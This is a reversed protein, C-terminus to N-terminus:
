ADVRLADVPNLRFARRAAALSGALAIGITMMAVVGFTLADSPDVGALLAQLSRGAAYALLLGPVAGALALAAGQALVSRALDRPQAGLAMRVGFEQTRQSVAFTLLGHLGIAALLVAVGAFAALVRVQQARPATERSVIGALPRVDSIPEQPDARRIIARVAPVLQDLPASSKIALDKPAYTSMYGDPIQRYPIYVQPESTAELGRARIDAVVGVITREFFAVAFRRGIPDEGPWYRRVFSESVVTVFQTGAGDADSVDRGKLLPIGLTRFFDPTTYRLSVSQSARRSATDGNLLVSWIGGRQVMPLGSIYAASTVGPLARVEDLVRLYFSARNETQSYKPWALTTRMTLVGDARFGPDVQQIRWLARILLGASVLLVISAVVETVVLAARVRDRRVGSRAGERLAVADVDRRIRVAPLLGFIMGTLATLVIAFVLVRPDVIPSGSSPLNMPTLQSLVPVAAYAVGVGLMGGALALAGSETALQRLLRDRGAGIATRVALERRRGLARAMLLNALNACVILLVCLAAGDLALILMRTQRPVEDRMGLAIGTIQENEKPYQAALRAAIAAIEARAQGLTADPKLRAVVQLYTNTRDTDTPSLRLPRWFEAQKSPFSFSAPMVGIVLYPEDDLTVRRGLVGPDAAFLARWLGDSLIITGAANERDEEETFWRGLAPRVGLTPLVDWTVAAGDIREPEVGNVVLNASLAWAAGMSEFSRSQRKWDRYNEPSLEFRSYYGPVSQWLKVLREPQPFPLPRLLAFDTVSFVATNAGIGIALLLIATLTFAPTRRLTRATYHLDQRLIDWHAALVGGLLEAIAGGWVGARGLAGADRLRCRLISTMERGYERRFSAPYLHLLLRYLRM